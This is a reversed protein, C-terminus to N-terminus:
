PARVRLLRIKLFVCCRPNIQRLVANTGRREHPRRRGWSRFFWLRRAAVSLEANNRIKSSESRAGLDAYRPVCHALSAHKHRRQGCPVRKRPKPASKKKSGAHFRLPHRSKLIYVAPFNSSSCFNQTVAITDDLNLVQGYAHTHTHANTHTCELFVRQCESVSACVSLCVSLCVCVCPYLSRIGGTPLSSSPRAPAQSPRM